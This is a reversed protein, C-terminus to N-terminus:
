IYLLLFLFNIKRTILARKYCADTNIVDTMNYIIDKPSIVPLKYREVM